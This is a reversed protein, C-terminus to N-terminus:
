RPPGELRRVAARSADKLSEYTQVYQEVAFQYDACRTADPELTKGVTVMRSAAEAISGYIGAGVTALIACGLVAAQQELPIAIPKGTVDALIRMWLASRTAGGCVVLEDVTVGAQEMRDLIVRTGYAVGEMIARFLHAPTHRLTLGRIVGRSTPDTWPTRNGQWHDLVVLGESGAPVEQAMADLVAYVDTGQREAERQIHSNVFNDKFWKLISGTSVQGGEILHYGPLVADPFTGFLGPAHLERDLLGMQVHSSGTMLSLQGPRIANLGIMGVFADGGGAAVPLGGRLGTQAAVEGRLGGAVEGLRVVRAPLKEFIGGLGIAEYLSRPLGDRSADYFWRVSLTNINVTTEGTLRYVLWDTLEFITRARDFIEPEHRKVWLTKCPFWEASVNGFGVYRLAPDATAAVDEAERHARVDMWLIADRLPAGGHDLFVATCTTGDVSVGEIAEPSIGSAALAQRIAAILGTDWHAVSQEAWGPHPYTTRTPSMGIGRCVGREDFVAARISETGADIGLVYRPM